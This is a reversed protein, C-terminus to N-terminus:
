IIRYSRAVGAFPVARGFADRRWNSVAATAPM